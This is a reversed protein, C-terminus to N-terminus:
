VRTNRRLTYYTVPDMAAALRRFLVAGFFRRLPPSANAVSRGIRGSRCVFGSGQACLAIDKVTASIPRYAFNM